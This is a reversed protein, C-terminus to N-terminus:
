EEFMVANEITAANIPHRVGNLFVKEVFAGNIRM